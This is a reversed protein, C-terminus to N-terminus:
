LSRALPDLLFELHKGDEMKFNILQQFEGLFQLDIKMFKDQWVYTCAECGLSEKKGYKAAIVEEQLKNYDSVYCVTMISNLTRWRRSLELWTFFFVEFRRQHYFFKAPWWSKGIWSGINNEENEGVGALIFIRSIVYTRIDDM